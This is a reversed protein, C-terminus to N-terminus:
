RVAAVHSNSDNDTYIFINDLYIIIFIDLKKTLIKNIYRQFSTSVNTLEFLMVQYKFYSYQTKFVTKWKDRKRIRMGHYASVLDFLTFQRARGLRDLSEGILSLPYQNKIM